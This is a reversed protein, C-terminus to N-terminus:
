LESHDDNRHRIFARSMAADLKVLTAVATPGASAVVVVFFERRSTVWM